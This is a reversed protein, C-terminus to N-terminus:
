SQVQLDTREAQRGSGSCHKCRDTRDGTSRKGNLLGVLSGDAHRAPVLWYSHIGSAYMGDRLITHGGFEPKRLNRLQASVSSAPANTAAAIEKLTSANGSQMFSWIRSIQTLLREGDLAQDFDAGSFEATM